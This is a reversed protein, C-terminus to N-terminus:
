DDSFCLRSHMTFTPAVLGDTTSDTATAESVYAAWIIYIGQNTLATNTGDNYRISGLKSGPIMFRLTEQPCVASTKIMRDELVIFRGMNAIKLESHVGGTQGINGSNAEFVDTWNIKASASNVQLDKVIAVRWTTRLYQYVSTANSLTAVAEGNMDGNTAGTSPGVLKAGTMTFSGKLYQGKIKNGIRTTTTTGQELGKLLDNSTASGSGSTQDFDYTSWNTSAWMFGNTLSVGAAAGTTRPDYGTTILAKDLYKKEISLRKRYATKKFNSFRSSYGSRRYFRRSGSSKRARQFRAYGAM